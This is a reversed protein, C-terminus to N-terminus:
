IKGRESYPIRILRNFKEAAVPNSDLETRSRIDCIVLIAHRAHAVLGGVEEPTVDGCGNGDGGMIRDYVPTIWQQFEPETCRIAAWRCLEGGKAKPATQEFNAKLPAMAMPMDIEPFLKHFAAKDIPSVHIKIELTGDVLERIQRRTGAIATM